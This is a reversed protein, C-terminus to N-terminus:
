LFCPDKRPYKRGPFHKKRNGALSRMPDVTKRKEVQDKSLSHCQNRLAKQIEKKTGSTTVRRQDAQKAKTKEETRRVAEKKRLLDTTTSTMLLVSFPGCLCKSFGFLSQDKSGEPASSDPTKLLEEYFAEYDITHLLNQQNRLWEYLNRYNNLLVNRKEDEVRDWEEVKKKENIIAQKETQQSWPISGLVFETLMYLCSILDDIALPEKGSM